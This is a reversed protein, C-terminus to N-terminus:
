MEDETIPYSKSHIISYLKKVTSGHFSIIIVISILTMLIFKIISPLAIIDRILLIEFVVLVLVCVLSGKLYNWIDFLSYKIFAYIAIMMIIFSLLRSFTLLYAVSLIGRSSGILIAAATLAIRVLGIYINVEPKGISSFIVGGVQSISQIAGAFALIRVIPIAEDWKNGFILTIIWDANLSVITMLPFAVMSILQISQFYGHIIKNPYAQISSFSPFLIDSFIYSIRKVPTYMINYAFAYYGVIASSFVRGLILYDINREFFLVSSSLKYKISYWVMEKVASFHYTFSPKWSSILLIIVMRAVTSILSQIVLSYVGLKFFAAVIGAVAGTITSLLTIRSLQKFELDREKIKYNIIFLPTLLISISSLWVVKILRPEDYFNSAFPATFIVILFTFVSLILNLWFLTSLQGQSTEQNYVISSGFGINTFLTILGIYTTSLAILGFDDPSLLRALVINVAIALFQSFINVVALYFGGKIITQKKSSIM